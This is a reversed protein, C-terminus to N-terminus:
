KKSHSKDISEMLSKLLQEYKEKRIVEANETEQILLIAEVLSDIDPKNIFDNISYKLISNIIQDNGFSTYVIVPTEYGSERISKMMEIGDLKPMKIDTVIIDIDKKKLVELAEFGNNATHVEKVHKKILFAIDKLILEEDDILLINKKEM